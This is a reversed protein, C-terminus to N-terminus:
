LIYNITYYILLCHIVCSSWHPRVKKWCVSSVFDTAADQTQQIPQQQSAQSHPQSPTHHQQPPLASAVAHPQSELEGSMQFLHTVHVHTVENYQSKVLLDSPTKFKYKLIPKSVHKSYVFVSNDESGAHFSDVDKTAMIINYLWQIVM